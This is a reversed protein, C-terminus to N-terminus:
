AYLSENCADLGVIIRELIWIYNTNSNLLSFHFKFSLDVYWFIILLKMSSIVINWYNSIFYVNKLILNGLLCFWLSRDRREKKLIINSQIDRILFSHFLLEKGIINMHARSTSAFVIYQISLASFYIRSSIQVKEPNM